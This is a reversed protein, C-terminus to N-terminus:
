FYDQLKMQLQRLDSVRYEIKGPRKSVPMLRNERRWRKVNGEGFRKYAQNQSIIGRPDELEDKLKPALCTALDSLFQEYTVAKDSFFIQLM